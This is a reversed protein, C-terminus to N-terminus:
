KIVRWENHGLFNDRLKRVIYTELNDIKSVVLRDNKIIYYQAEDPEYVVLYTDGDKDILKSGLTINLISEIIDLERLGMDVVEKANDM